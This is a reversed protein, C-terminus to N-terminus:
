LARVHGGYLRTEAFAFISRQGGVEALLPQAQIQSNATRPWGSIADGRADLIHVQRDATAVIMEAVGDRTVDAVQLPTTIEERLIVPFNPLPSGSANWAYIKNGAAQM